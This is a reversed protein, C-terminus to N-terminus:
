SPFKLRYNHLDEQFANCKILQERLEDRPLGYDFAATWRQIRAISAVIPATDKNHSLAKLPLLYDERYVTPVIVRCMGAGSLICNMVLRATRGNGDLFPHVETVVFMAMIARALPDGLGMIREFGERLTGPVLEPAVFFTNGAQNPRDKWEGPKKDQRSKMVIANVDRLWTLFQEANQPPQDRWPSNMAAFFTGLIDHSDESRQEIIKGHFLIDEAEGVTFTTGEIYNSFYSEYFAFNERASGSSAPDPLQQLAAGNLAAFLADLLLLREPDYPRGAARAIAQRATLRNAEHTGLLAGIVGDLRKFQAGMDLRVALDRAQDRLQNLRREGGIMLLRDLRSELEAQPLVRATVGRGRSFNELFRRPDGSMYLGGLQIDQSSGDRQPGPGPWVEILLGPLRLTQRTKGRTVFICGDQPKGDFASRYSIVGDPLLHGVIARWNRLVVAEPPSDFNSTYVGPYLRRLHGQGALRTIRRASTHDARSALVLEPLNDTNQAM